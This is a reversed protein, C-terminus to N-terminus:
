DKDEEIHYGRKRLLSIDESTDIDLINGEIGQIHMIDEPHREIIERLGSEGTLREIERIYPAIRILVPHGKMGNHVPVVISPKRKEFIRVMEMVLRKEIFPKDGLHFFIGDGDQIFSLAAKISTSMGKPYQRNHIYEVSFGHLAHRIKDEEFGTVVFVKRSPTAIFPEVARRIVSKGDIKLTLKNFGLRSSFGAALIVTYIKKM